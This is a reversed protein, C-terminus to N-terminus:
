QNIDLELTKINMGDKTQNRTKKMEAVTYYPKFLVLSWTNNRYFLEYLM